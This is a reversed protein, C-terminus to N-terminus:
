GPSNRNVMVQLRRYEDSAAYQRLHKLRTVVLPHTSLLEGLQSGLDDDQKELQALAYQRSAASRAAGGTALKVLASVAKNVDGCALLGARDASFECARNWWRFAFYLIVAAGFPSPIGAMGGLVSNLWTHGLQVHGMEHGIVFQLEDRDMIPFLGAYLVIVKPNGLGFTYANLVPAPAVYTVTNGVGLRAATERVLADLQPMTQPTVPEAKQILANHHARNLLFAAILMAAVFLLSGCLTAASTFAIVGLVLSVTMVLIVHENPYRYETM